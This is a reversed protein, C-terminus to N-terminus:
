KKEFLEKWYRWRRAANALIRDRDVKECEVIIDKCFIVFMSDYTKVLLDFSMASRGDERKTVKADIMKSPKVKEANGYSTIVMSMNGDDNYGLYIESKYDSDIRQYTHSLAGKAFKESLDNNM